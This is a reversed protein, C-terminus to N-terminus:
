VGSRVRESLPIPVSVPAGCSGCIYTGPRYLARAHVIHAGESCPDRPAKEIARMAAEVDALTLAETSDTASGAVYSLLSGSM